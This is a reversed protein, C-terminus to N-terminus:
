SITLLKSLYSLSEQQDISHKLIPLIDGVEKIGFEYLQKLHLIVIVFHAKLPM